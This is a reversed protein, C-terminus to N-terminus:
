ESCTCISQCSCHNNLLSVDTQMWSPCTAVKCWSAKLLKALWRDLCTTSRHNFAYHRGVFGSVFVMCGEFAHLCMAAWVHGLEGLSAMCTRVADDARGGMSQQQLHLDLLCHEAVGSSWRVECSKPCCRGVGPFSHRSPGAVSGFVLDGVVDMTPILMLFSCGKPKALIGWYHSVFWNM